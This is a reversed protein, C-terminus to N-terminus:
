EHDGGDSARTAASTAVLSRVWDREAWLACGGRTEKLRDHNARITELLRSQLADKLSMSRLSTDSYPAFPCAEVAGSTSVHVFGRGAALCGGFEEEDGPFGVFLAPQSARFEELRRVLALKQEVSLVLNETGESVPVYEVYFFLRCGADILRGVFEPDILLDLNSGTVTLSCGWFIGSDKARAALTKLRAYVGLGRRADTETEPGEISAVAIVNRQKRFREVWRDDILTGNTFVPFVIDPFERTVEILEPRLLPEGGALLMVGVGLERAEALLSRFRDVTMEGEAATRLAHHYCGACALNCRSTISVIMVPPVHVGSREWEARMKAARRQNRATALFFRVQAPRVLKLGGARRFLNEIQRDFSVRGANHDSSPETAPM